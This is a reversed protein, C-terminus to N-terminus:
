RAGRLLRYDGPRARQFGQADCVELLMMPGMSAGGTAPLLATVLAEAEAVPLKATFVLGDNPVEDTYAFPALRKEEGAVHQVLSASVSAADAGATYITAVDAGGSLVALLADRYSGFFTQSAFLKDPDHGLLRLHARPLLYGGTSLADVWAARKGKLSSVELPEDTRGVLATRYSSRGKRIAKLIARATPEARACLGPPAWALEVEDALVRRELEDYSHEVEVVVERGLRRTLNKELVEARATAKLEGLSPAFLLTLKM